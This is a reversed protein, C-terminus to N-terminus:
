EIVERMYDAKAYLDWANAPPTLLLLLAAQWVPTVARFPRGRFLRSIYPSNTVGSAASHSLSFHRLWKNKITGRARNSRVVKGKPSLLNVATHSQNNAM